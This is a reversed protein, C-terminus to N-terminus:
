FVDATLQAQQQSLQTEKTQTAIRELAQRTTLEGKNVKTLIEDSFAAGFANVLADRTSKTNKKLRM